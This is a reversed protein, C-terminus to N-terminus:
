LVPFLIFSFFYFAATAAQNSGRRHSLHSGNSHLSLTYANRGQFVPHIVDRRARSEGLNGDKDRAVTLLATKNKYSKSTKETM